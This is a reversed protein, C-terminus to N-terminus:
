DAFRAPRGGREEATDLAQRGPGRGPLWARLARLLPREVFTFVLFGFAVTAVTTVVILVDLNISPLIRVVVKDAASITLAQVLYISYSADGLRSLVSLVLGPKARTPSSFAAVLVLVAAPVGAVVARSTPDTLLLAALVGGVALLSIVPPTDRRYIRAVIIGLVFEMVIPRTVFQLVYFVDHRQVDAALGVAVLGSFILTIATWVYPRAAAMLVAACLYFFMEYELSWGAYIIPFNNGAFSVFFLSRVVSGATYGFEGRFVGPAFLLLATIFLTMVWYIPIIRELRRLLFGPATTDARSASLYIVFGSIVFFLDVGLYGLDFHQFLRSHQGQVYGGDTGLSHFLVVALAALFRLVQIYPLRM